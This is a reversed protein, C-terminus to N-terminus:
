SKRRLMSVDLKKLKDATRVLIIQATALDVATAPYEMIMEIPIAVALGEAPIGLLAFLVSYSALGGGPIPPVAISILTLGIVAM